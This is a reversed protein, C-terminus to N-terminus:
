KLIQELETIAEPFLITNNSQKILMEKINSKLAKDEWEVLEIISVAKTFLSAEILSLSYLSIVANTTNKLLFEAPIYTPYKYLNNFSFTNHHKPHEKIAFNNNFIIRNMITTFSDNDITNNLSGQDIWLNKCQQINIQNNKVIDSRLESYSCPLEFSKFGHSIIFEDNIGWIIKNSLSRNTLKLKYIFELLKKTISDKIGIEGTYIPFGSSLDKHYVNGKNWNAALYFGDVVFANDLLYLNAEKNIKSLIKDIQRKVSYQCYPKNKAKYFITKIGVEQLFLKVSLNSTIVLTESMSNSHLHLAFFISTFSPIFIYNTM